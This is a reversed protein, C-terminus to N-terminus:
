MAVCVIYLIISKGCATVRQLLQAETFIIVVHHSPASAVSMEDSRTTFIRVFMCIDVHLISYQKTVSKVVQRKYTSM